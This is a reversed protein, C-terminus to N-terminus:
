ESSINKAPGATRQRAAEMRLVGGGGSSSADHQGQHLLRPLSNGWKGLSKARQSFVHIISSISFFCPQRLFTGLHELYTRPIKAMANNANWISAGLFAAAEGASTCRHSVNKSSRMQSKQRHGGHAQSQKFASQVIRWKDQVWNNHFKWTHKRELGIFDGSLLMFISNRALSQFLVLTPSLKLIYQSRSYTQRTPTCKTQM